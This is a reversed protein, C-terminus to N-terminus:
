PCADGTSQRGAPQYPCWPFLGRADPKSTSPDRRKSQIGQFGKNQPLSWARGHLPHMERLITEAMRSGPMGM